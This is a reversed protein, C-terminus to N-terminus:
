TNRLTLATSGPGSCAADERCRRGAGVAHGAHDAAGGGALRDRRSGGAGGSSQQLTQM